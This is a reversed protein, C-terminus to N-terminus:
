SCPTAQWCVSLCCCCIGFATELGHHHSLSMSMLTFVACGSRVLSLLSDRSAQVLLLRDGLGNSLIARTSHSEFHM